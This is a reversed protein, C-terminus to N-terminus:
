RTHNVDPISLAADANRDGFIYLYKYRRYSASSKVLEANVADIVVLCDRKDTRGLRFPDIKTNSWYEHAMLIPKFRTDADVKWKRGGHRFYAWANQNGGKKRGDLRFWDPHAQSHAQVAIAFEDFSDYTPM